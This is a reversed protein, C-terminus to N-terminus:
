TYIYIHHISLVHIICIINADKHEYMDIVSFNYTIKQCIKQKIYFYINVCNCYM